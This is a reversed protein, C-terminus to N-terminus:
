EPRPSTVFVSLFRAPTLETFLAIYGARPAYSTPVFTRPETDRMGSCAVAFEESSLRLRTIGGTAGIIPASVEGALDQDAGLLDPAPDPRREFCRIGLPPVTGPEVDPTALYAGARSGGGSMRQLGSMLIEVTAREYNTTTLISVGTAIQTQRYEGNTVEWLGDYAQWGAASGAFGEFYRIRDFASPHPDCEDGVQDRDENAQAPNHFSPCNDCGDPEGDDDEDGTLSADWCPLPVDADPAVELPFVIHCGTLWITGVIASGCGSM